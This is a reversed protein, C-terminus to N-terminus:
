EPYYFIPKDINVIRYYRDVHTDRIGDAKLNTLMEESPYEGVALLSKAQAYEESNKYCFPAYVKEGNYLLPETSIITFSSQVCPKENTRPICYDAFSVGNYQFNRLDYLGFKYTGGNSSAYRFTPYTTKDKTKIIDYQTVNKPLAIHTLISGPKIDNLVLSVPKVVNLMVDESIYIFNNEM